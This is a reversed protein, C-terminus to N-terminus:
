RRDVRKILKGRFLGSLHVDRPTLLHTFGPLVNLPYIGNEMIVDLWGESCFILEPSTLRRKRLMIGVIGWKNYPTGLRKAASAQIGDYQAQPLDWGYQLDLLPTCYGYPRKMWGGDAHAGIWMNDPTLMEVHSLYGDTFFDIARGIFGGSNIFRTVLQPM